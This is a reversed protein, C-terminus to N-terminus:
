GWNELLILLDSVNVVGDDNLDAPCAEAQPCDGWAGLLILLDSVNVVGDGNLDGPTPLPESKNMLIALESDGGAVIDLLGNSNIDVLRISLAQPIWSSVEIPQGLLSFNNLHVAISEEFHFGVVADVWGDGDIDGLDVSTAGWGTPVDMAPMFTGDGSGYLVSLRDDGLCCFNAVVLDLSGNTILDGTAIDSPSGGVEHLQHPQFTGDGNGLLVAISDSTGIMGPAVLADLVGNNNLDALKVVMAREGAVYLQPPLYGGRGDALLVVIYADESGKTHLAAVIDMFGDNNLDGVAIDELFHDEPQPYLVQSQQFTGDGNGFAVRIAGNQDHPYSTVALDAIGNANLDAVVIASADISLTQQAAFTGDANQSLISACGKHAGILDIRGNNNV